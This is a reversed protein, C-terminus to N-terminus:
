AQIFLTVILLYQKPPDISLVTSQAGKSLLSYGILWEAAYMEKENSNWIAFEINRVVM